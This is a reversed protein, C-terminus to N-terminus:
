GSVGRNIALWYVAAQRALHAFRASDLPKVLYSNVGLGYTSLVDKEEESSTMVVVPIRRTRPDAKMRQLVDLGGFKPMNLDLLM